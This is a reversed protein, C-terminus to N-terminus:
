KVEQKVRNFASELEEHFHIIQELKSFYQLREENDKKEDWNQGAEDKLQELLERQRSTMSVWKHFYFDFFSKLLQTNAIYLDKREGKRWVQSVLNLESLSRINTSMATKSKGLAQSMEDLTLPKDELYMYAFLRSELTSLGFMEVTKSFVTVIAESNTEHNINM